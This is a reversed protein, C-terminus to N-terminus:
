KIRSTSGDDPRSKNWAYRLVDHHLMAWHRINGHHREFGKGELHTGDDIRFSPRFGDGVVHFHPIGHEKPHVEVKGVREIRAVIRDRFVLHGDADRECNRIDRNLDHCEIHIPEGDSACCSEDM